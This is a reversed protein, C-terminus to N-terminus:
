RISPSAITNITRVKKERFSAILHETEELRKLNLEMMPVVLLLWAMKTKLHHFIVM